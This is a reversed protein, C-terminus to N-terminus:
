VMANDGIDHLAPWTEYVFFYQALVEIKLCGVFKMIQDIVYNKLDIILETKSFTNPVEISAASVAPLVTLSIMFPPFKSITCFTPTYKRLNGM